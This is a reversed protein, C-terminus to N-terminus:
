FHISVGLSFFDESPGEHTKASGFYDYKDDSYLYDRYETIQTYAAMPRYEFDFSVFKFPMIKVGLIYGYRFLNLSKSGNANLVLSNDGTVTYSQFSGGLMFGLTLAVPLSETPVIYLDFDCFLMSYSIDKYTLNVTPDKPLRLNNLKTSCYSVGVNFGGWFDKPLLAYGVGYSAMKRSQDILIEEHENYQMLLAKNFGTYSGRAYFGHLLYETEEEQQALINGSLFLNIILILLYLSSRFHNKM